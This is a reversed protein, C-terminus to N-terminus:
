IKRVYTISIYAEGEGNMYAAKERVKTFGRKEYFPIGKGNGKQVSVWQERAGKERQIDTLFELLQTGIGEGRRTPDLYLVFVESKEEGVMGGGIAGVVESGDVAVIYGDWGDSEEIEGSIREHNYFLQKMREINDKSRIGQYTDEWGERCVRSIGEVHEVSARKIVVM